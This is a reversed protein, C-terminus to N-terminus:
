LCIDYSCVISCLVKFKIPPAKPERLKKLTPAQDGMKAITIGNGVQLLKM